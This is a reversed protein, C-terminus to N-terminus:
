WTFPNFKKLASILLDVRLVPIISSYDDNWVRVDSTEPLMNKPNTDTKMKPFQTMFALTLILALAVVLKPHNVSFEALSFKRM